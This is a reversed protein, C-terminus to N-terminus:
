LAASEPATEALFRPLRSALRYAIAGAPGFAFFWLLVGLLKEHSQIFLAGALSRHGDGPNPGQQLARQLQAVQAEDNRERARLLEHVDEALDRPGLCLLLILASVALAVIPGDSQGIGWWALGAPVAVVALPLPGSRWVAAPLLVRLTRMVSLFVVPRGWGPLHGLLRELLLALLIGILTM